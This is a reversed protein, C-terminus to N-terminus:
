WPKVEEGSPQQKKYQYLFKRRWLGGPDDPIRRLWQETAQQQEREEPTLTADAPPPPAVAEGEEVPAETSREALQQALEAAAQEEAAAEEANRAAAEGDPAAEGEGPAAAEGPQGEDSPPSGAAGEPTASEGQEGGASEASPEGQPPSEGSAGQEEGSEEGSKEGSKEGSEEGSQEASQQLWEQVRDRNFAADTLQPAQQLAEEYAELAEELRGLQALANGRNYAAEGGEIQALLDAAQQYDGNRYHAAARWAPDAFLAAAKKSDGQELAQQGQQDRNLWLSDFGAALGERPLPLVVVLALLLVGRRFVLLALALLPLLLWPGEEQWQDSTHGEGAADAEQAPATDIAALLAEIDRGDASLPRYLGGATRAAAAMREGDLAAVVINGGRDKLFGGEPLPIPAGEASGVGLLLLRYGEARLQRLQEDLQAAPVGDLGDSVLLLAGSVRGAQRLLERGKV